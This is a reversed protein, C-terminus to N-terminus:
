KGQPSGWVGGIFRPSEEMPVGKSRIWQLLHLYKRRRTGTSNNKRAAGQIRREAAKRM